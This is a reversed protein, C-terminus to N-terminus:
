HSATKLLLVLATDSYTEIRSVYDELAQWKSNQKIFDGTKKM